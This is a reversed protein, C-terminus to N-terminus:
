YWGVPQNRVSRAGWGVVHLRHLNAAVWGRDVLNSSTPQSSPRESAPEERGGEQGAPRVRVMQCHQGTGDNDPSSETRGPTERILSGEAGVPGSRRGPPSPREGGSSDM